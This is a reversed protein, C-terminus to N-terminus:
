NGGSADLTRQRRRRMAVQYGAWVLLALLSLPVLVALVILALALATGLIGIGDTLADRPSWDGGADASAGDPEISVAVSAFDVRNELRRLTARQAAIRRNVLGLRARVSATENATDAAALQRLLGRREAVAETLRSRISVFRATVDQSSQTRSRVHALKSLDRIASELRGSPIRLDLTAGARTDGSSITSRLVFGRYRDTVEIVGDSVDEVEDPAAALTLAAEREVNRARQRPSIDGGDPPPTPVAKLADSPRTATAEPTKNAPPASRTVTGPRRDDDGSLVGSSVVATTVIFISAATGLALPL